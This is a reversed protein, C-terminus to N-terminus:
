NCHTHTHKDLTIALLHTTLCDPSLNIENYIYMPLQQCIVVQIKENSMCYASSLHLFLKQIHDTTHHVYVCVLMERWGTSM